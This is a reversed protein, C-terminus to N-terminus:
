LTIGGVNIAPINVPISIPVAATTGSSTQPSATTPVAAPAQPVTPVFPSFAVTPGTVGPAIPASTDPIIAKPDINTGTGGGSFGLKDVVDPLYKACLGIFIITAFGVALKPEVNDLVSLGIIVVTGSFILKLNPMQQSTISGIALVAGSGIVLNTTADTM